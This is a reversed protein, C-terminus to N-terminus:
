IDINLISNKMKFTREGVHFSTAIDHGRIEFVHFVFYSYPTGKSFELM